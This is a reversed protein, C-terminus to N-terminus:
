VTSGGVGCELLEVSNTQKEKLKKVLTYANDMIQIHEKDIATNKSTENEFM